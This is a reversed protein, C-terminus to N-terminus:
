DGRRRQELAARLIPLVARDKARGTEEKVQIQTELDLVMVDWGPEVTVRRSKPLLSAYDRGAGVLGLVDLAGLDTALLNHGPGCLRDAAPPIRRGAPDRHLASMDNLAALLRDVNDAARDHVIDLDVTFVAVGSMWAAVGGVVVFRIDHRHLARLLALFDPSSHSV